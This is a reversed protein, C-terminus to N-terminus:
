LKADQERIYHFYAEPIEEKDQATMEATRLLAKLKDKLIPQLCAPIHDGKHRHMAVCVKCNGHWDCMTNPCTCRYDLEKALARNNLVLEYYEEKSKM